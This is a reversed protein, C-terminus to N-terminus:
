ATRLSLQKCKVGKYEPDKFNAWAAAEMGNASERPPQTFRGTKNLLRQWKKKGKGPACKKAANCETLKM